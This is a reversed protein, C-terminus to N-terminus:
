QLLRRYLCQSFGKPLEISRENALLEVVNRLGDYVATCRRCNRLHDAIHARIEEALDDELYDSLERCVDDCDLEFFDPKHSLGAVM